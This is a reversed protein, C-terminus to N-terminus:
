LTLLTLGNNNLRTRGDLYKYCKLVRPSYVISLSTMYILARVSRINAFTLSKVGLIIDLVEVGM